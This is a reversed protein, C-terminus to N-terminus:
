DFWSVVSVVRSSCGWEYVLMCDDVEFNFIDVFIEWILLLVRRGGVLLKFLCCLSCYSLGM